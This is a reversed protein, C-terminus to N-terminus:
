LIIVFIESFICDTQQDDTDLLFYCHIILHQKENTFYTTGDIKM